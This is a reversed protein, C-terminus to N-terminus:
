ADGHDHEKPKVCADWRTSTQTVEEEFEERTFVGKKCLTDVM